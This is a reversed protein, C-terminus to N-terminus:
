ARAAGDDVPHRALLEHPQHHLAPAGLARVLIELAFEPEIMVFAAAKGAPMMVHRGHEGAVRKHDGLARAM